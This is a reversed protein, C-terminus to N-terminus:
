PVNTPPASALLKLVRDAWARDSEKETETLGQYPTDCQRRWRAINEPTLHDLLHRTWHSWQEHELAALSERLSM